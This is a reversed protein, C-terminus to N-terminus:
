TLGVVDIPADSDGADGFGLQGLPGKGWCKVNGAAFRACGFQDGLALQVTNFLGEKVEPTTHGEGWCRVKGDQMRACAQKGGVAVELAPGAPPPGADPTVSPESCAVLLVLALRRM